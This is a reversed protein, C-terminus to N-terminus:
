IIYVTGEKDYPPAFKHGKKPTIMTASEYEGDHRDYIHQLLKHVSAISLAQGREKSVCGFPCEFPFREKNAPSRDTM